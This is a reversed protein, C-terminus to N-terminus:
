NGHTLGEAFMLAEKIGLATYVGNAPGYYNNPTSGDSEVRFFRYRTVGDGPSATRVYFGAQKCFESLRKNKSM